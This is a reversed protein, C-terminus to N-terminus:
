AVPHWLWLRTPADGMTIASDDLGDTIGSFKDGNALAGSRRGSAPRLGSPTPQFNSTSAAHRWAPRRLSSLLLM